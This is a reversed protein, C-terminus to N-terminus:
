CVFKTFSMYLCLGIHIYSLLFFNYGFSKYRWHNKMGNLWQHLSRSILLAIFTFMESITVNKINSLKQQEKYLNSFKVIENCLCEPFLNLFIDM